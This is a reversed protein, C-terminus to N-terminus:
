DGRLHERASRFQHADRWADEAIDLVKEIATAHEIDGRDSSRRCRRLKDLIARSADPSMSDFVDDCAFLSVYYEIAKEVGGAAAIRMWRMIELGARMDDGDQQQVAFHREERPTRLQRRLTEAITYANIPSCHKFASEYVDEAEFVEGVEHLRWSRLFLNIANNRAPM